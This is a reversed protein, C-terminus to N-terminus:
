NNYKMTKIIQKIIEIWLMKLSMIQCTTSAVLSDTMILLIIHHYNVKLNCNM